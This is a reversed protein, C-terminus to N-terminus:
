ISSREITQCKEKDLYKIIKAPNGAIVCYGEEFSKTVVTGAGVITYDGLVVAPLLVSHSGIWCHKGIKIPSAFLIKQNEYVDHNSSIISVNPGINTYDGVYIGNTANIYNNPSDGPFTEKGIILKKASRITSTFHVPWKVEANHRLIKRFFIDTLYFSVPYEERWGFIKRLWNRM